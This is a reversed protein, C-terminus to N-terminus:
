SPNEAKPQAQFKKILEEDSLSLTELLQQSMEALYHDPHNKILLNYTDGAKGKMKMHEDYVFALMFLADVHKRYEPFRMYVHEFTQASKEFNQLGIQVEAAKFLFDPSVTDSPNNEAYATYFTVIEKAKAENFAASKSKFLEQELKEIKGLLEAKNDDSSKEAPKSNCALLISSFMLFGLSNKIITKM